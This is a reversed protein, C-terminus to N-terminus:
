GLVSVLYRLHCNLSCLSHIPHIPQGGYGPTKSHGKGDDRELEQYTTGQPMQENAGLSGPIIEMDHLGMDHRARGQQGLKM